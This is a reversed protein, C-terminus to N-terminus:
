GGAGADLEVFVRGCEDRVCVTHAGEAFIRVRLTFSGDEVVDFATLDAPVDDVTVPDSAIAGIGSVEAIAPEPSWIREIVVSGAPASPVTTAPPLVDPDYVVVRDATYVVDNSEGCAGLVALLLLLRALKM